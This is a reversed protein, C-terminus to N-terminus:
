PTEEDPSVIAEPSVIAVQIQGNTTDRLDSELGELVTEPVMCHLRVISEHNREGIRASHARLVAGVGDYHEYAFTLVLPLEVVIPRHPVEALISKACETYARVLGGKGLKIGGFYRVVTVLTETFESNQLVYLVPKGATGKPEGDDSMGYCHTGKVDFAYAWVVHGCKPYEKRRLAIMRKAEEESCVRAATAIFVSRKVARKNTRQETPVYM